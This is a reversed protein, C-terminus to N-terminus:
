RGILRKVRPSTALLYFPMLAMSPAGVRQRLYRAFGWLENEKSFPPRSRLYDYWIIPLYGLVRRRYDSGRYDFEARERRSAASSNLRQLVDRPIPAEFAESLYTMTSQAPLVLMRECAQNLFRTWDIATSATRLVMMADAVWRISPLENWRAGHVCIHFLQDTHNLARTPEGGITIETSGAWFDDNAGPQCNDQLVHWHLDIQNQDRDELMLAHRASVLNEISV